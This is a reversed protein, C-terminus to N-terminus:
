KSTWATAWSEVLQEAEEHTKTRGAAVDARGRRVAAMIHLEATIEELSAQEPLRGLADLVAQKDTM